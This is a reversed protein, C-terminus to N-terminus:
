LAFMMENVKIQAPFFNDEVLDNMRMAKSLPIANAFARTVKVRGM